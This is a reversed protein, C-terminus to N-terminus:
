DDSFEYWFWVFYGVVVCLGSVCDVVRSGTAEVFYVSYFFRGFFGFARSGFYVGSAVYRAPDYSSSDVFGSPM